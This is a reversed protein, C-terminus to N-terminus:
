LNFSCSRLKSIKTNIHVLYNINVETPMTIIVRGILGVASETFYILKEFLVNGSKDVIVVTTNTANSTTAYITMELTYNQGTITLLRNITKM